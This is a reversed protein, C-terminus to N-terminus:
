SAICTEGRQDLCSFLDEYWMPSTCYTGSKSPINVCGNLVDCNGSDTHCPDGNRDWKWDWSPGCSLTPHSVTGSGCREAPNLINGNGDGKICTCGLSTPCGPETIKTLTACSICSSQDAIDEDNQDLICNSTNCIKLYNPINKECIYKITPDKKSIDGSYNSCNDVCEQNTSFNGSSSKVCSFGNKGKECSFSDATPGPAPGHGPTHHHPKRGTTKATYKVLLYIGVSVAAVSLVIILIIISVHM